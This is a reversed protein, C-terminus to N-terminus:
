PDEQGQAHVTQQQQYHEALSCHKWAAVVVRLQLFHQLFRAVAAVSVVRLVIPVFLLSSSVEM